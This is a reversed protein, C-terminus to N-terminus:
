KNVDKVLNSPVFTTNPSPSFPSLCGAHGFIQTPAVAWPRRNDESPFLASVPIRRPIHEPRCQVNTIHNETYQSDHIFPLLSVPPAHTVANVYTASYSGPAPIQNTRNFCDRQHLDPFYDPSQYSVPPTAVAIPFTVPYAYSLMPAPPPIPGQVAQYVPRIRHIPPDAAPSWEAPPPLDKLFRGKEDREKNPRKRPVYEERLPGDKDLDVESLDFQEIGTHTLPDTSQGKPREALSLFVPKPIGGTTESPSGVAILDEIFHRIMTHPTEKPPGIPEPYPTLSRHYSQIHDLWQMWAQPPLSLDHSLLDLGLAELKNLARIPVGSVQHWTKNSFTNDDLWKNALMIGLLFLRFPAHAELLQRNKEAGPETSGEGLFELRLKYHKSQHAVDFAFVGFYVPFRAIYWLALFIASPQLLTACLLTRINEALYIPPEAAYSRPLAGYGSDNAVFEPPLSLGQTVVKWIYKSVWASMPDAIRHKYLAMDAPTISSPVPSLHSKKNNVANVPSPPAAQAVQQSHDASHLYSTPASPPPPPLSHRNKSLFSSNPNQLPSFISSPFPNSHRKFTNPVSVTDPRPFFVEDETWEEHSPDSLVVRPAYKAPSPPPPPWPKGNSLPAYAPKTSPLDSSMTSDESQALRSKYRRAPPLSKIWTERDTFAAPPGPPPDPLSSLLHHLASLSKEPCKVHVPVPVPMSLLYQVPKIACSVVTAAALFDYIATPEPGCILFLIRKNEDTPIRNENAGQRWIWWRGYKSDQFFLKKITDSGIRGAHLGKTKKELVDVYVQMSFMQPERVSIERLRNLINGPPLDSVTPSSHLLTFRTQKPGNVRDKVFLQHMFQYFPTIGTGGSIQVVFSYFWDFVTATHSMRVMIIEDWEGEKWQWTVVPGRIEIQEGVKREHIWRGVEGGHYRKVWFEMEENEDIGELPTYPREVQIDSDKIYVSYITGTRPTNKPITHSQLKFKLLKTYPTCSVSSTITVPTFHTPAMPLNSSTPAARSPGNVLLYYLGGALMGFGSVYGIARRLVAVKSLGPIDGDKKETGSHVM